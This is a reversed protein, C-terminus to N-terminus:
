ATANMLVEKLANMIDFGTDWPRVMAAVKDRGKTIRRDLSFSRRPFAIDTERLRLTPCFDNTGDGVYAVVDYAVGSNRCHETLIHGKCMNASSM